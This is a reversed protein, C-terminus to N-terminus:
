YHREPAGFYRLVHIYRWRRKRKGKREERRAAAQSATESPIQKLPAFGNAYHLEDGVRPPIISSLSRRISEGSARIRPGFVSSRRAMQALVTDAIGHPRNVLVSYGRMKCCCFFPFADRSIVPYESPSFHLRSGAGPRPPVRLFASFYEPRATVRYLTRRPRLLAPQLAPFTV